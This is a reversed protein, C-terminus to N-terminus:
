PIGTIMVPPFLLPGTRNWPVSLKEVFLSLNGLLLLVLQHSGHSHQKGENGYSRLHLNVDSTVMYPTYEFPAAYRLLKAGM